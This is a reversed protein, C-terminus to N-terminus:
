HTETSDESIRRGNNDEILVTEIKHLQLVWPIRGLWRAMFEHFINSLRHLVFVAVIFDLIPMRFGIPLYWAVSVSIWVSLCYGCSILNGTFSSLKYMLKRFWELIEANLILETTAEVFIIAALWLAITSM